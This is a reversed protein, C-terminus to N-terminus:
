ASRHRRHLNSLWALPTCAVVVLVVIAPEPVAPDEAADSGSGAFLTRGFNEKWDNYEDPSGGTKRWMVYDAADVTGDHNYDGTLSSAAIHLVVSTANYIVDFMVDPLSPLLETDFDGTVASATLITLYHEGSIEFDDLLTVELTGALTATGSILLEDFSSASALEILLDGDISQEYDGNLNLAGASEGPSILGESYVEGQLTGDGHISSLGNVEIVPAAVV